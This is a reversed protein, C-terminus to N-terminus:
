NVIGNNGTLTNNLAADTNRHLTTGADSIIGNIVEQENVDNNKLEALIELATAQLAKQDGNILDIADQLAKQMDESLKQLGQQQM